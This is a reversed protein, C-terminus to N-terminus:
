FLSIQSWWYINQICWPLKCIMLFDSEFCIFCCQLIDKLIGYSLIKIFVPWLCPLIIWYALILQLRLVEWAQSKAILKSWAIYIYLSYFINLVPAASNSPPLPAWLKMLRSAWFTITRVQDYYMFYTWNIFLLHVNTYM